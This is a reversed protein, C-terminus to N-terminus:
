NVNVPSDVTVPEGNRDISQGLAVLLQVLQAGVWGSSITSAANQQICTLFHDCVRSLPEAAEVSLIELLPQNPFFQQDKQELEGLQLVLPTATLLEDFVITGQSGSISLRRQKDPNCWCLHIMSQFGSPYTLKVWVLDAIGKSVALDPSSPQLWVIAQAQVQIPIEDLWYNFIALDHIALDWLVDVDPRVPGLHTRAAYGYRLQGLRGQQIQSKGQQVAPHFLYTHDVILQRQQQEALRCLEVAEEVNLTLPKETLVHHGQKLAAKILTYHTSAPTVIAVAEVGPFRMAAEWDTTLLIEPDLTFQQQVNQLREPHPDAIAVVRAQPHALFNRLLHVGWRGVGFIAIGISERGV